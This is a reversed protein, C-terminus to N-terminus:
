SPNPRTTTAGPLLGSRARHLLQGARCDRGLAVGRSGFARRASRRRRRHVPRGPRRPEAPSAAGGPRATRPRSRDPRRRPVAVLQADVVTSSAGGTIPNGAGQRSRNRLLPRGNSVSSDPATARQLRCGRRAVHKSSPVLRTSGSRDRHAAVLRQGDRVPLGDGSPQRSRSSERSASRAPAAGARRELGLEAVAPQRGLGRAPEARLARTASRAARAGCGCRAASTRLTAYRWPESGSCVGAQHATSRTSALVNPRHITSLPRVDTSISARASRRASRM